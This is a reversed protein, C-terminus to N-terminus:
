DGANNGPTRMTSLPSSSPPATEALKHPSGLSRSTNLFVKGVGKYFVIQQGFSIGATVQPNQGVGPCALLVWVQFKMSVIHIQIGFWTGPLFCKWVWEEGCQLEWQSATWFYIFLHIFWPHFFFGWSCIFNKSCHQLFVLVVLLVTRPSFAAKPSWFGGWCWNGINDYKPGFSVERKLFYSFPLTLLASPLTTFTPLFLVAPHGHDAPQSTRNNGGWIRGAVQLGPLTIEGLFQPSVWACGTLTTSGSRPQVNSDSPYSKFIRVGLCM